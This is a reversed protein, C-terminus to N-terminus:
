KAFESQTGTYYIKCLTSFSGACGFASSSSTSISKVSGSTSCAAM